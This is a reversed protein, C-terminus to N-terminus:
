DSSLNTTGLIMLFELIFGNRKCVPWDLKLRDTHGSTQCEIIMKKIKINHKGFNLMKEKLNHICTCRICHWKNLVFISVNIQKFDNRYSTCWVSCSIHIFFVFYFKKLYQKKWNVIISHSLRSGAGSSILLKEINLSFIKWNM